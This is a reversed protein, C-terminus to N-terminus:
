ASVHKPAVNATTSAIRKVNIVLVATANNNGRDVNSNVIISTISTERNLDGNSGDGDDDDKDNSLMTM